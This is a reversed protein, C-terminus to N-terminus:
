EATARYLFADSILLATILAKMSGGGEAYARHAAVLVPGDALTENRGMFYRFAHRVFVQEVRTSTALKRVLDFPDSVPGDMETDGSQHVEGTTDLKTTTYKAGRSNGNKDVNKETALKDVVTEVTRFRGIHDFQEFPLGLPDMKQHCKWCYEERTVRMRKRLPNEPEDPLQADVTVPLEPIRGGLLRERVWRGRNIAHNEFNTSHAILWSPHSLIGMRHGKPMEFPREDSWQQRDIDIEYIDLATQAFLSFPKTANKKVGQAQKTDGTVLFTKSTTLLECLVNKDSELIWEVLRDADSVFFNPHWDNKGRLGAAKRTANDKFVEIAKTYGFYEQFFRLVRPKDIERDNLIRTVQTRIDDRQSLKGDAAAQSLAEDPERDTLAYAIARALDRPPLQARKVGAPPLEIRYMAEPHFLIAVFLQELAKEKGLDAINKKLFDAYRQLEEHTPRRGLMGDFAEATAAKVQGDTLSEKKNLLAALEPAVRKKKPLRQIMLRSVRTANRLHHEIESEGVRHQYAYDRLGEQEGLEWAPRIRHHGYTRIALGYKRNIAHLFEFYAEGTLRWLRGRTAAPGTAKGSFLAEHNVLNGRSPHMWRTEDVTEGMRRLTQKISSLVERRAGEAPQEADEPPMERGALKDVVKKWTEAETPLRGLEHLALEAERKEPGHCRVCYQKAFAAITAHDGVGIQGDGAVAGRALLMTVCITLATGANTVKKLDM